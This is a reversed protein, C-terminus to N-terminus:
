SKHGKKARMLPVLGLMLVLLAPLLSRPDANTQLSCGAGGKFNAGAGEVPPVTANCSTTDSDDTEGNCDNDVGDTCDESAAPSIDDNADNCDDNNDVYGNPQECASTAHGQIDGYGDNDADVYWNSTTCTSDDCDKDLDSAGPHVTADNDDCDDGGTVETSDYGDGDVDTLDKGDCDQDIGDYPIEEEGPNISDDTDNCDEDSNYGDGDADVEEDGVTLKVTVRCVGAFFSSGLTIHDPITMSSPDPVSPMSGSPTFRFHSGSHRMGHPSGGFRSSRTYVGDGAYFQIRYTDEPTSASTSVLVETSDGDSLTVEGSSSMTSDLGSTYLTMSGTFGGKTSYTVTYSQSDGPEISATRPTATLSCGGDEGDCDQDTGDDAVETAGPYVTADDDNCDVDAAYGDKDNDCWGNPNTMPNDVVNGACYLNGGGDKRCGSFFADRSQWGAIAMNRFILDSTSNDDDATGCALPVTPASIKSLDLYVMGMDGGWEVNQVYTGNSNTDTLANYRDYYDSETDHVVSPATNGIVLNYYDNNFILQSNLIITNVEDPTATTTDIDKGAETTYFEIVQDFPVDDEGPASGSTPPTCNSAMGAVDYVDEVIGRLSKTSGDDENTKVWCYGALSSRAGALIFFGLLAYQFLKHKM